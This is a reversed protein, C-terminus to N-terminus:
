LKYKEKNKWVILRALSNVILSVVFLTLGVATLSSMILDTEAEAYENAILSAMTQAPEFLSWKIQAVNGIVMTVAMTEGLARGLGLIVAALIGPLSARLVSLKLMEWRTAGLGYAAERIIDPVSAFVERCITSITPTIMFALIIGSALMGVGIPEGQFFPLWGLTYQLAPQLYNKLFPALVFLGWLGYVISPIAALMEVLFALARAVGKPAIENVYLAMGLSIPVALLLALFSSVLTGFIFPLAGFIQRRPDWDNTIFFKLGFTKIAEFSMDFIAGMMLGLLGVTMLAVLTLVYYFLRDGPHHDKPKLLAM